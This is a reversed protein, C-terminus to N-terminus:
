VFGLNHDNFHALNPFVDALNQEPLGYWSALTAAYQDVSTTPIIRGRGSDDVGEIRIEPMHGYIAKGKVAGGMVLQHGGWGHDTGDGNNTLSRGFDAATFTTVNSAVGMLETSRYFASLAASLESLLQPHRQAQDGHTDWGPFGVFFVQRRLGLQERVSIMRAVMRLASALQGQPYDGPVPATTDLVQGLQDGVVLARRHSGSQQQNPTWRFERTGDHNDDFSANAPANELYLDPVSGDSDVANVRFRIATGVIAQQEAIPLIEPAKNSGARHAPQSNGQSPDGVIVLVETTARLEASGNGIATFRFRHEGQDHASTPWHFTRTGDGNDDFSAKDPLRDVHLVAETIGPPMRPVVRFVVVQGAGVIPNPITEISPQVGEIKTTLSVNFQITRDFRLANNRADIATFVIDTQGHQEVTPTWVFYRSGELTDRLEAGSPLSSATLSPVTGDDDRPRILLQFPKGAVLQQVGIEALTPASNTKLPSDGTSTQQTDSRLIRLRQSVRLAADQADVASIIIITEDAANEPLTWRLTRSGDDNDTLTAADPANFMVLGPVTGDADFAKLRIELSQGVSLNQEPLPLLQPPQNAWGTRFVTLCLLSLCVTSLVRLWILRHFSM